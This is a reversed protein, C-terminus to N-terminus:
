SFKLMEYRNILIRHVMDLIKRSLSFVLTRHGSGKLNELLKILFKMKGSEAILTDDTVNEISSANSTEDNIDDESFSCLFLENWLILYSQQIINM